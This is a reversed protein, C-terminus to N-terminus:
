EEELRFRVTMTKWSEVAVGDRTAPRFRWKALAREQTVRWFADSAAAVREVERVRGDAGILVRLTVVGGRGARREEAPYTPQFDRRYRSDVDADRLVPALPKPLETVTGIDGGLGAGPTPPPGHDPLAIHVDTSRTPTPSVSRDIPQDTPAKRPRQEVPDTPPPPPMLPPMQYVRLGPDREVIRIVTNSTMAAALLAGVITMSLTLSSRDIKASGYRDAYM